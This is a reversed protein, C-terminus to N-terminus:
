IFLFFSFNSVIYHISSNMQPFTNFYINTNRSSVIGLIENNYKKSFEYNMEILKKEFLCSIFSNNTLITNLDKCKLHYLIYENDYYHGQLLKIIKDKLLTNIETNKFTYIDTNCYTDFKPKISYRYYPISTILRRMVPYIEYKHLVPQSFWFPSQIKAYILFLIYLTFFLYFFYNNLNTSFDYALTLGWACPWFLLMYGIPKELRTLEIFLKIQNM